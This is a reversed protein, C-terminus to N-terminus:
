PETAFEVPEARGIVRTHGPGVQEMVYFWVRVPHALQRSRLERAPKYEITVTGEATRLRPSDAFHDLENFTQGAVNSAFLPALYYATGPQLNVIAYDVTAVLTTEATLTSRPPPAITRLTVTATAKPLSPRAVGSACAIAGLLLLAVGSRLLSRRWSM